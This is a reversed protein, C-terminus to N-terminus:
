DFVVEVEVTSTYFDNCTLGSVHNKAFCCFVTPTATNVFAVTATVTFLPTDDHSEDCYDSVQCQAETFYTDLESLAEYNIPNPSTVQNGNVDDFINLIIKIVYTGQAPLNAPQCDADQPYYWSVNVDWQAFVSATGILLAATLIIIKKMTKLKKPLYIIKSEGSFLLDQMELVWHAPFPKGAM